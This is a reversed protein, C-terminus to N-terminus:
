KEKERVGINELVVFLFFLDVDTYRSTDLTDPKSYSGFFGGENHIM